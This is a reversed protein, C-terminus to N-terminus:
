RTGSSLPTPSTIRLHGKDPSIPERCDENVFVTKTKEPNTMTLEKEVYTSIITNTNEM